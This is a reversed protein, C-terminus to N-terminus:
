LIEAKLSNVLFRLISETLLCVTLKESFIEPNRKREKPLKEKKMLPILKLV